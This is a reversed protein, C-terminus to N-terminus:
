RDGPCRDLEDVEVGVRGQLRLLIHDADEHGGQEVRRQDHVALDHSRADDLLLRVADDLDQQGCHPRALQQQALDDADTKPKRWSVSSPAVASTATLRVCTILTGLTPTVAIAPPSMHNTSPKM